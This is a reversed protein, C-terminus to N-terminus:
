SISWCTVTVHQRSMNVVTVTVTHTNFNQSSGKHQLMVIIRTRPDSVNVNLVKHNLVTQFDHRIDCFVLSERIPENMVLLQFESLVSVCYMLPFMVMGPEPPSNERSTACARQCSMPSHYVFLCAPIIEFNTWLRCRSLLSLDRQKEYCGCRRIWTGKVRTKDTLWVVEPANNSYHWSIKLSCWWVSFIVEARWYLGPSM